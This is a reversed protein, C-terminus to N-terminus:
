QPHELIKPNQEFCLFVACNTLCILINVQFVKQAADVAIEPVPEAIPIYGNAYAAKSKEYITKQFEVATKVTEKPPESLLVM